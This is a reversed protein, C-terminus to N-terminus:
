FKTLITDSKKKKAVNFNYRICGDRAILIECHTCRYVCLTLGLASCMPRAMGVHDLGNLGNLYRRVQNSFKVM